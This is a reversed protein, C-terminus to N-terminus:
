RGDASGLLETDFSSSFVYTRSEERGFKAMTVTSLFEEQNARAWFSLKQFVAMSLDGDGSSYTDISCATEYCEVRVVNRDFAIDIQESLMVEIENRAARSWEADTTEKSLAVDVLHSFERAGMEFHLAEIVAGHEQPTLPASVELLAGGGNEIAIINDVDSPRERAAVAMKDAILEVEEDSSLPRPSVDPTSSTGLQVVHEPDQRYVLLGVLLLLMAVGYSLYRAKM